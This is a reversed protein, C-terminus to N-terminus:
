GVEQVYGDSTVAFTRVDNIYRCEGLEVLKRELEEDKDDPM